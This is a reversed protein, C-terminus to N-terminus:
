CRVADTGAACMPLTLVCRTGGGPLPALTINGEYKGAIMRAMPLGFGTASPNSSHFPSFAEGLKDPNFSVGNNEITINVFGNRAPNLSSELRIAPEDRDCHQFANELLCALLLQIEDADGALERTEPDIAMAFATEPVGSGPQVKRMARGAAKMLDTRGQRPEHMTLDMYVNVNKAMRELRVAEALITEAAEHSPDGEKHQRMLSRAAGGIVSVPNRVQHSIGQIVEMECQTSYTVYADTEVLLSLDVARDVAMIAAPRDREPLRSMAAEHLFARAKIYSFSILRHDVNHIVHAQGSRWAYDMLEVGAGKTFVTAHWRKWNNMLRGPPQNDLIIRLQPRSMVFAEIRGALEDALPTFVEAWASSPGEGPGLLALFKELRERPLPLFPM